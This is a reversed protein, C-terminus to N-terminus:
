KKAADHTMAPDENGSWASPGPLSLLSGQGGPWWPVGESSRLQRLSEGTKNELERSNNM